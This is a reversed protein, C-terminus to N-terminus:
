ICPFSAHPEDPAVESLKQKHKALHLQEAYIYNETQNWMTCCLLRQLAVIHLKKPTQNVLLQSM